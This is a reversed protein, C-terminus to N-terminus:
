VMVGLGAGAHAPGLARRARREGWARRVATIAGMNRPVVNSTSKLVKKSPTPDIYVYAGGV